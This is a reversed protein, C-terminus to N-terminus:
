KIEAKIQRIWAKLQSTDENPSTLKIYKSYYAIAQKKDGLYSEYLVGLNYYADKDKPNLQIVRKFAEAAKAFQNTKLYEVALNYHLDPNEAKALPPELAPQTKSTLTSSPGKLLQQAKKFEEDAASYNGQGLLQKGTLYYEKAKKIKEETSLEVKDQAAVSAGNSIDEACLPLVLNRVPSTYIIIMFLCTLWIPVRSVGRASDQKACGKKWLAPDYRFRGIQDLRKGSPYPSDSNRSFASIEKMQSKNFNRYSFKNKILGRSICRLRLNECILRLNECITTPLDAPIQTLFTNKAKKMM